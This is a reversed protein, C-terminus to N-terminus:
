ISNWHNKLSIQILFLPNKLPLKYQWETPVYFETEYWVWGVFDRLQKSQTIDNYSAPVPM